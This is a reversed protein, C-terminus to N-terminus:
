KLLFGELPYKQHPFVWTLTFVLTNGRSVRVSTLKGEVQLAKFKVLKSRFGVICFKRMNNACIYLLKVIHRIHYSLHCSIKTQCVRTKYQYTIEFFHLNNIPFLKWLIHYKIYYMVADRVILWVPRKKVFAVSM